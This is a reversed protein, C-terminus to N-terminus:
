RLSLANYIQPQPSVTQQPMGMAHVRGYVDVLPDNLSYTYVAPTVVPQRQFAPAAPPATVVPPVPLRPRMQPRAQPRVSGLREKYGMPRVGIANLLGSLPGGQFTPGSQGAGGGDFMDRLASVRNGSADTYGYGTMGPETRGEQGALIRRLLGTQETEAM